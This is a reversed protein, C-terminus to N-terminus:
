LKDFVIRPEELGVYEFEGGETEQMKVLVVPKNNITPNILEVWIERPFDGALISCDYGLRVIDGCKKYTTLSACKTKIGKGYVRELDKDIQKKVKISRDSVLLLINM